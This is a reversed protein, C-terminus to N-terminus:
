KSNPSDFGRFDTYESLEARPTPFQNEPANTDAYGLAMGCVVLESDPLQLNDRIVHHYSAMAGIGCTAIGEGEAALFLSQVFLGLDMFSGEGLGREITIIMGVPADFFQFNRRHQAIRAPIDRREIGLSEYLAYGVTRQRAKLHSPMPDPFYGYEEPRKDQQDFAICLRESLSALPTGTLVHVIGPQLNAGSPARRALQLIRELSDRTVPRDTFRRTSRRQQLADQVTIM